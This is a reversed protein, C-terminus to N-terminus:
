CPNALRLWFRASYRLSSDRVRTPCRSACARKRSSSLALISRSRRSARKSRKLRERSGLSLAHLQEGDATQKTDLADYDAVTEIVQQKGQRQRPKQQRHTIHQWPAPERALRRRQATAGAQAQRQLVQPRDEDLEPLDEGGAAVQQGFVNGVLQHQQLVRTGGNSECCDIASISSCSPWFILSTNLRKSTSGRAEADTACTCAACSLVPSSTTTFTM